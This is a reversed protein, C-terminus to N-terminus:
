KSIMVENIIKLLDDKKFPKRIFHDCGSQLALEKDDSRVYATQVIIPLNPFQQKIKQTAVFGDMIPMKLDMLILDYCNKSALEVAEKGNMAHDIRKVIDKLIIEIYHYNMPEDEAVLINLENLKNLKTQQLVEKNYGKKIKKFPITLHFRSGHNPKSSVGIKGNLTRVLENSISLGLGTGRIAHSIVESGRYFNDFILKQEKKPIGMGTDKVYFEIDKNKIDFGFEISGKSTYKVANSSFNTIIQKIKDVDALITLDKYQDPIKTIIDLNHNINDLSFTKSIDMLLEAPSFKFSKISIKESQLRSILLLDEVLALLQETSKQVIVAYEDKKNGEAEMMLSSFGIIGNMPTRIEHAMNRLFASKLNNNEDALEKAKILEIENHKRDTIDYAYINIYDMEKIPCLNLSLSVGNYRIEHEMTQNQELAKGVRECWLEPLKSKVSTKWHTLLPMSNSNAYLLIGDKDVRMVPAPNENPFMELQKHDTIDNIVIRCVPEHDINIAISETIHGWFITKDKKVIRLDCTQDEAKKFLNKSHLYYIDQDEAKIFQTFAQNLLTNRSVGLMDAITLNAEIIRGDENVTCYGVPATDYLNVYRESASDLETQTRRLTENQVELEIQHVQLEHFLKQMDAPLDSEFKKMFATTKKLCVDEAWSRLDKNHNDNSKEKAM